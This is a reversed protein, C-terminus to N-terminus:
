ILGHNTADPQLSRLMVAIAQNTDILVKLRNGMFAPAVMHRQHNWDEGNAM